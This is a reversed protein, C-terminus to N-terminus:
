VISPERYAGALEKNSSLIRRVSEYLVFIAWPRAWNTSGNLFAQWNDLVATPSIIGALAKPQDSLSEQVQAFLGGKLWKEYPLVFGRKPGSVVERPLAQPLSSVLLPKAANNKVKNHGPIRLVQEVLVHDLLPVRVELSHAMSMVDTDRLLTNAIYNKLELYSLRNIPDLKLSRNIITRLRRGWDGYDIQTVADPTLLGAIQNPLFLTRSLFYPHPFGYEGSILVRLKAKRDNGNPVLYTAMRRLARPTKGWWDILHERRPLTRFHDYGCFVEDGGLGSLAVTMGAQKVAKSIHFTNIGDISPQDQAAIAAECSALMASETLLISQHEVGLKTATLRALASEDFSEEEFAISFTKVLEDSGERAL